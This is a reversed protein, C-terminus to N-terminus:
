PGLANRPGDIGTSGGGITALPASTVSVSPNAAFVTVANNAGDAVYITGAADLAIGAPANLTTSGGDNTALPADNFNGIPTAAYM